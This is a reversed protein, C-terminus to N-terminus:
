FFSEWDKPTGFIYYQRNNYKLGAVYRNDSGVTLNASTIQKYMKKILSPDHLAEELTIFVPENEKEAAQTTDENSHQLRVIKKLIAKLAFM